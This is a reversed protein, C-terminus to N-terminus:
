DFAGQWNIPITGMVLEGKYGRKFLTAGDVHAVIGYDNELQKVWDINQKQSSSIYDSMKKLDIVIYEADLKQGGPDWPSCTFTRTCLHPFIHNSATVTTGDPILAIVSSIAEDHTNPLHIGRLGPCCTISVLLSIVILIISIVRWVRKDRLCSHGAKGDQVKKLSIILALFLFPIAPAPYQLLEKQGPATALMDKALNFLAPATWLPSLLPLFGLPIFYLLFLGISKWSFFHRLAEGAIFGSPKDTYTWAETHMYMLMPPENWGSLGSAVIIAIVGTIVSSVFIALYAKEVKRTKLYQAILMIAGFVALAAAVDQRTMLSLFLGIAFIVWRQELLGILMILLTPIALAVEHFDFFSVGNVLPSLLFLVEVLLATGHELQTRALRYVLYGSAGIVISQFILLTESHPALRFIPVLLFLIPSFHYALHSMGEPSNYLPNGRITYWLSQSFIGLDFAGTSYSYHKLLSIFSVVLTYVVALGIAQVVPIRILKLFRPM